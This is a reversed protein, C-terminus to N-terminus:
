LGVVLALSVFFSIPPSRWVSTQDVLFADRTLPVLLDASPRLWLGKVVSFEAQLRLGPAAFIATKEQANPLGRASAWREGLWFTACGGLLGPQWCGAAVGAWLASGVDGTGVPTSTWPQLHLELALAFSSRKAEIQVFASTAVDPAMAFDASVGAAARLRIAPVVRGIEVARSAVIAPPTSAQAPAEVVQDLAVGVALAMASGLPGCTESTSVLQQEYLAAGSTRVFSAEAWWDRPRGRFRVVLRIQATSSFPDRGIAAEVERRFELESPCQAAEQPLEYVLRPSSQASAVSSSVFILGCSAFLITAVARYGDM